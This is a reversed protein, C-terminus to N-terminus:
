RFFGLSIDSDALTLESIMVISNLFAFVAGCSKLAIQQPYIFRDRVIGADCAACEM